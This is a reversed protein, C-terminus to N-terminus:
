NKLCRVSFSNTEKIIQDHFMLVADSSLRIFYVYYDSEKDESATWWNGEYRINYFYGSSIRYGGPMASFGTENTAGLNPSLWYDTGTAKLKCGSSCGEIYNMLKIWENLTPIHWGSPCLKGSNVTTWNYLAGYISKYDTENNNYWCYCASSLTSLWGTSDYPISVDDNFKTTKLNEAMWVQDGIKVSRYTNGDIDMVNPGPQNLWLVFSTDKGYSTGGINIAYSRVYYTTNSSINTIESIFSDKGIGDNTHYGAITPESATGWCVGKATIASGGDDTINV